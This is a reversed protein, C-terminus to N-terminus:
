QQIAPIPKVHTDTDNGRFLLVTGPPVPGSGVDRETQQTTQSKGWRPSIEVEKSANLVAVSLDASKNIHASYGREQASLPIGCHWIHTRYM